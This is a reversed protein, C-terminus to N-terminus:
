LLIHEPYNNIIVTDIGIGTAIKKSIGSTPSITTLLSNSGIFYSLGSGWGSGVETLQNEPLVIILSSGLLASTKSIGCSLGAHNNNLINYKYVLDDTDIIIAMGSSINEGAVKILEGSSGDNIIINENGLINDVKAM